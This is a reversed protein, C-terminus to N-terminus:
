ERSAGKIKNSSDYNKKQNLVKVIERVWPQWAKSKSNLPITPEIGIGDLRFDPLRNSVGIPHFLILSPCPLPVDVTEEFDAVGGTREGAVVVKTSKKAALIFNETSSKCNRNVLLVIREPKKYDLEPELTDNEIKWTSGTHEKMETAMAIFGTDIQGQMDLIQQCWAKVNFPTCHYTTGYIVTKGSLIFPWFSNFATLDGGDNDRLDLILTECSLIQNLNQNLLSDILPKVGATINQLQVYFVDKNWPKFEQTWKYRASVYAEVPEPSKEAPYIRNWVTIKNIELINKVLKYSPHEPSHDSTYFTCALNGKSDPFFEM